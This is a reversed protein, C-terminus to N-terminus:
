CTGQMAKRKMTPLTRTNSESSSSPTSYSFSRSKPNTNSSTFQKTTFTNLNVTRPGGNFNFAIGNKPNVYTCCSSCYPNYYYNWLYNQNWPNNWSNYSYTYRNDYYYTDDLMSWRYRNQVKMRLYRDDFNEDNSYRRDDQKEVRVYEDKPLTPSFYVDDPTQGSKYATNCGTMAAVSVALLLIAPKM